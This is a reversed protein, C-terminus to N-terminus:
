DERSASLPTVFDFDSDVDGYDLDDARSASYSVRHAEGPYPPDFRRLQADLVDAPVPHERERNRAALESASALLVRHEILANRRKAVRDVLSRQQRTLSTADWVVDTGRALLVELQQLAEHLVEQNASQDARSGRASRLGDLSVVETGSVNAMADVLTSKGSGSVGVLHFLRPYDGERWRWTAAVAEAVSAIRGQAFVERAEGWCRDAARVPLESFAVQCAARLAPLPSRPLLGADEAVMASWAVQEAAAADPATAAAVAHLVALDMGFAMRALGARRQEDDFAQHLRRALGVVDGVQRATAVAGLPAALEAMVEARRRKHVLAAVAGVLRADGFSGSVDLRSYADTLIGIDPKEDLGIAFALDPAEVDVGSRVSWLPASTGLGNPVVEAFMWHTDTQVHSPRVWKAVRAGFESYAFGEEARVVYGEQRNLDLRFAKGLTREDGDFTGRFLVRPTPIGISKLFRVTSDWDLCREGDWVSFGYFYGDLDDYPISHRAFLNEGCIRWGEPIRAAIRGHLAKVWARSPHHASDLSRAHLGDRYLTTNEADMKETVVVRRGVLGALEGVRVDDATAGPSWPLHPTRPYHVRM